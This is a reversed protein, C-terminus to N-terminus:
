LFMGIGRLRDVYVYRDGYISEGGTGNQKSFDGGQLM